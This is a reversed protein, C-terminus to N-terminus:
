GAVDACGQNGTRRNQKHLGMRIATVRIVEPSRGLSEAIMRLTMKGHNKILYHREFETFPRHKSREEELFKVFEVASRKVAIQDYQAALRELVSRSIVLPRPRAESV